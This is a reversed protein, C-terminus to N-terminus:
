LPDGIHLQASGLLEDSADRVSVTWVGRNRPVAALYSWTRWSPSRGVDLSFRHRVKGDREWVMTVSQPEGPNSLQAHAYVRASDTAIRPGVDAPNRGEVRRAFVLRVLEIKDKKIGADPVPEALAAGPFALIAALASLAYRTSLMAVEKEHADDDSARQFLLVPALM